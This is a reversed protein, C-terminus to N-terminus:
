LPVIEYDIIYRLTGDGSSGPPDSSSSLAIVVAKDVPSVVGGGFTPGAYLALPESWVFSDARSLDVSDEVLMPDLPGAVAVIPFAAGYPTSVFTYIGMMRKPWIVKGVGPAAIVEVPITGLTRIQAATVDVTVRTDSGGGGGAFANAATLTAGSSHSAPTSGLFGRDVVLVNETVTRFLRRRTFQGRVRVVESGLSAYFPFPGVSSDVALERTTAIVDAILATM